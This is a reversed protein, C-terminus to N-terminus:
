MKSAAKNKSDAELFKTAMDNMIKTAECMKSESSVTSIQIDSLRQLVWTVLTENVLILPTWVEHVVTSVVHFTKSVNMGGHLWSADMKAKPSADVIM